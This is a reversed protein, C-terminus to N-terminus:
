DKALSASVLHPNQNETEEDTTMSVNQEMTQRNEFERKIQDAAEESAGKGFCANGM